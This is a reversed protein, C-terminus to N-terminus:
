RNEGKQYVFKRHQEMATVAAQRLWTRRSRTYKLILKEADESTNYALAKLAMFRYRAKWGTNFLSFSGIISALYDTVEAGGLRSYVTLFQEQENLPYEAFTSSHVIDRVTEFAQRGGMRSLYDLAMTRLQPEPDKLFRFMLEIAGESTSKSLAKITERRVRGDSHTAASAMYRLVQDGGIRGLIMVTNRNVYWRRDNLGGAIIKIQDKGRNALYDCVMLRSQRSVLKGLMGTIHALSEWGLSDLYIELSATDVVEQRNIIDTLQEIRRADGSRLIFNALREASGPKQSILEDQRGRLAHVFDAAVSFYGKALLQDFIKECIAVTEIFPKQDDWFHLIDMLIRTTARHHDFRRNEELLLKIERNEEDALTFSGSLLQELGEQSGPSPELSLGMQGADEVAETSLASAEVSTDNGASRENDELIIQNFDVNANPIAINRYDPYIERIMMDTECEGLALDEVTKFKINAFQEQWLMSVLDRDLARDNLFAKLVDLFSNFEDLTLGSRFELYIIGTNYFIAALNEDKEEDQHVVERNHIIEGPRISFTLGDLQDVVEIFRTGYSSRMKAPLPNDDPYITIVKIIKKLDRLLLKIDSTVEQSLYEGIINAM